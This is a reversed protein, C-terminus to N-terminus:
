MDCTVKKRRKEGEQSLTNFSTPPPDIILPALRGQKLHKSIPSICQAPKNRGFTMEASKGM